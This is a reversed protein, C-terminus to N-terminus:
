SGEVRKTSDEVFKPAILSMMVDVIAATNKPCDRAQQISFEIDYEIQEHNVNEGGSLLITMAPGDDEIPVNPWAEHIARIATGFINTVHFQREIGEYKSARLLGAHIHSLVAEFDEQPTLPQKKKFIGLM